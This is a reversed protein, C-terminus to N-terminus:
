SRALCIARSYANKKSKGMRARMIRTGKLGMLNGILRTRVTERRGIANPFM